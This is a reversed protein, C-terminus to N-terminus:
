KAFGLYRKALIHDWTGARPSTLTILSQSKSRTLYNLILLGNIAVPRYALDLATSYWHISFRHFASSTSELDVPRGDPAFVDPQRPFLIQVIAPLVTISLQLSTLSLAFFPETSDASRALLKSSIM